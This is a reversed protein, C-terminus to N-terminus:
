AALEPELPPAMFEPGVPDVIAEGLIRDIQAITALDLHFDMAGKLPGLQDPRRAGMLAVSVSASRAGMAARAADRNCPLPRACIGRPAGSGGSIAPLPATSIESRGKRLDDGSFQTEPRMRCSFLGRCIPGYVLTTIGERQAYPLIDNEIGREFLNYPPQITHLPAVISNTWRPPHLTALGSQVFKGQRQLRLMTEATEEMPVNPDPWHVQYFDIVDTDLRGLSGEVEAVIRKATANRFPQDERWDFGVKTAIIAKDRLSSTALARGVIQESKGFGYVPATDILNIGQDLASCITAISQQENEGAWTWGGL